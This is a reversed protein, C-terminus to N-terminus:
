STSPCAGGWRMCSTSLDTASISLNVGFDIRSIFLNPISMSLGLDGTFSGVERVICM